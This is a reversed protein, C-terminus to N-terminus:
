RRIELAKLDKEPDNLRLVIVPSHFNRRWVDLLVARDADDLSGKKFLLVYCFKGERRKPVFPNNRNLWVLKAGTAVRVLPVQSPGDAGGGFVVADTSEVTVVPLEAYTVGAKVYGATVAGSTEVRVQRYM